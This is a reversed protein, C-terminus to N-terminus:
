LVCRINFSSNVWFIISIHLESLDFCGHSCFVLQFSSLLIFSRTYVCFPLALSRFLFFWADWAVIEVFEHSKFNTTVLTRPFFHNVTRNKQMNSMRVHSIILRARGTSDLTSRRGKTANRLSRWWGFIYMNKSYTWMQALSRRETGNLDM